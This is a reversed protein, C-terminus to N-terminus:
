YVMRCCQQSRPLPGIDACLPSNFLLLWTFAVPLPQMRLSLFLEEGSFAVTRNILELSALLITETDLKLSGYKAFPQFNHLELTHSSLGEPWILTLSM